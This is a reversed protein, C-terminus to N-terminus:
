RSACDGSLGVLAQVEACDLGSVERYLVQAAELRAAPRAEPAALVVARLAQRAREPIADSHILLPIMSMGM